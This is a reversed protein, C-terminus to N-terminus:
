GLRPGAQRKQCDVTSKIPEQRAARQNGDLLNENDILLADCM